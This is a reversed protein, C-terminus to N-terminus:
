GWTTIKLVTFIIRCSEYKSSFILRIRRLENNLDSILIRNKNRMVDQPPSPPSVEGGFLSVVDTEPINNSAGIAPALIITHSYSPPRIPLCSPSDVLEDRPSYEISILLPEM